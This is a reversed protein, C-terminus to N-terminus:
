KKIGRKIDVEPWLAKGTNINQLLQLALLPSYLYARSGMGTFSYVNKYGKILGIIANRDFTSPRFASQHAILKTYNLGFKAFKDLLLNKHEEQPTDSAADKIYTSGLKNVGNETPLLFVGETHLFNIQNPIALTLIDGLLPMLIDKRYNEALFDHILDNGTALIIADFQNSFNNIIENHAIHARIPELNLYDKTEIWGSKLITYLYENEIKQCELFGREMADSFDWDNAEKQNSVKFTMRQPRIAKSNHEKYFNWAFDAFDEGRWLVKKRSIAIPNIIGAAIKSATNQKQIDFITATFGLQKATHYLTTGSIGAGIIAIKM